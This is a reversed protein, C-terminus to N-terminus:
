PLYVIKRIGTVGSASPVTATTWTAGGDMSYLAIPATAGGGAVVRSGGSALTVLSATAPCTVSTSTWSSNAGTLSRYFVCNPANYLGIHFRTGDDTLAAPTSPNTGSISTTDTGGFSVAYNTSLQVFANTGDTLAVVSSSGSRAVVAPNGGVLSSAAWSAGGNSSTNVRPALDSASVFHQSDSCVIGRSVVTSSGDITSSSWNGGSNSSYYATYSAAGTTAAVVSTGCAGVKGLTVAALSVNSWTRGGDVSTRLNNSGSDLGFLTSGTVAADSISNVGSMSRATWTIGDASEYVVATNTFAAFRGGQGSTLLLALLAGAVGGNSTDLPSPKLALCSQLSLLVSVLVCFRRVTSCRAPVAAKACFFRFM